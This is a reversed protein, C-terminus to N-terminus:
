SRGGPCHARVRQDLAPLAVTVAYEAGRPLVFARRVTRASDPRVRVTGTRRLVADGRAKVRVRYGLAEPSALHSAVVFRVLVSDGRRLCTAPAGTPTTRPFYLEVYSEPQRSTSLAVQDRFGPLVLAGLAVLVALLGTVPLVRHFWPSPKVPRREQADEPATEAHDM